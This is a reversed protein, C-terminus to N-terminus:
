QFFWLIVYILCLLHMMMAYCNIVTFFWGLNHSLEILFFKYILSSKLFINTMIELCQQRRNLNRLEKLFGFSGFHLAIYDGFFSIIRNVDCLTRRFMGLNSIAITQRRESITVNIESAPLLITSDLERTSTLTYQLLFELSWAAVTTMTPRKLNNTWCTFSRHGDNNNSQFYIQHICLFLLLPVIIM